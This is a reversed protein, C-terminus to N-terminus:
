KSCTTHVMCMTYLNLKKKLNKQLTTPSGPAGRRTFMPNLKYQKRSGGECLCYLNFRLCMFLLCYM